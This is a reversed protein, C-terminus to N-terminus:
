YLIVSLAVMDDLGSNGGIAYLSFSSALHLKIHADQGTAFSLETLGTQFGPLQLSTLGQARQNLNILTSTPYCPCMCGLNLKWTEYSQARGSDSLARQLLCTRLGRASVPVLGVALLAPIPGLEGATWGGEFEPGVACKFLLEHEKELSAIQSRLDDDNPHNKVMEKIYNDIVSVVSLNMLFFCGFAILFRVHQIFRTVGAGITGLTKQDTAQITDRAPISFTSFPPCSMVASIYTQQTAEEQTAIQVIKSFVTQESFRRRFQRM